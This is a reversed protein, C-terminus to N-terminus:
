TVGTMHRLTTPQRARADGLLLAHAVGVAIAQPSKGLEPTGIPCTIRAIQAPTAGLQQLRKRFRAWKSDSGILGASAFRRGMLRHCIDLDIAHSLTMILHHATEPAHGVLDAPNAAIAPTVGPPLPDPLRDAATDILTVDFGPLPALTAAVARGVHGAGYIWVPTGPPSVPEALWGGTCTTAEPDARQLAPPPAEPAGAQMPRIYRGTDGPLAALREADFREFGLLVAGGCCQGLAPGLPQRLLLPGGAGELMARARRTAEWELTGGGITGSQGTGWVLMAAGAERPTSGDCGAVVVRVVAGHAAVAARVAAPDFSM